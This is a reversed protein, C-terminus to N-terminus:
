RHPSLGWPPGLGGPQWAQVSTPLCQGYCLSFPKPEAPEVSHSTPRAVEQGQAETDEPCNPLSSQGALNKLTVPM